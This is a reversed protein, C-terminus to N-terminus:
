EQIESIGNGTDSTDGGSQSEGMGAHEERVKYKDAKNLKIGMHKLIPEVPQTKGQYRVSPVGDVELGTWVGGKSHDKIYTILSAKM